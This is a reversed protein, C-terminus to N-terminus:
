DAALLSFLATELRGSCRAMRWGDEDCSVLRRVTLKALHRYLAPLSIRTSASLGDVSVGDAAERLCRLIELRRPHTFGTLVHIIERESKGEVLLARSLAKLLLGADAVLPDPKPFYYVWRSLRNAQILGRAQLARLQESALAESIGVREAIEGVSRGPQELVAKL